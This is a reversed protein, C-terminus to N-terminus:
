KVRIYVIKILKLYIDLIVNHYLVISYSYYKCSIRGAPIENRCVFSKTGKEVDALLLHYIVDKLDLDFTARRKCRAEVPLFIM